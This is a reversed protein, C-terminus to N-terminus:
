INGMNVPVGKELKWEQIIIELQKEEFRRRIDEAKELSDVTNMSIDHKNGEIILEYWKEIM